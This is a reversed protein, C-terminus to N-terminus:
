KNNSGKSNHSGKSKQTVGTIRLATAEMDLNDTKFQSLISMVEHM